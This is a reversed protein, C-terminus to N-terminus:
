KSCESLRTEVVALRANMSYLASGVFTVAAIGIGVQLTMLGGLLWWMAKSNGNGQQIGYNVRAGYPDFDDPPPKDMSM